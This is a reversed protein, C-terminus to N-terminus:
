LGGVGVDVDFDKDVFHVTKRIVVLKIDLTVYRLSDLILEGIVANLVRGNIEVKRGNVVVGDEFGEGLDDLFEDGM